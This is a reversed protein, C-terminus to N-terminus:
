IQISDRIESTIESSVVITALPAAFTTDATFHRPKLRPSGQPVVMVRFRGTSEECESPTWFLFPMQEPVQQTLEALVIDGSHFPPFTDDSVYLVSQKSSRFGLSKLFIQLEPSTHPILSGQHLCFTLAPQSKRQKILRITRSKGASRRIYGKKVLASLHVMVGNSSRIGVAAGLERISPAYGRQTVYKQIVHLIMRQRDTLPRRAASKTTLTM